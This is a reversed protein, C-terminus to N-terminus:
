WRKSPCPDITPFRSTNGRPGLTHSRDMGQDRAQELGGDIAMSISHSTRVYRDSPLTSPHPISNSLCRRAAARATRAASQGDILLKLAASTLGQPPAGIHTLGTMLLLCLRDREASASSSGSTITRACSTATSSTARTRRAFVRRVAASRGLAVLGHEWASRRM